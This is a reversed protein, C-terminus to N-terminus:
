SPVTRLCQGILACSTRGLDQRRRTVFHMLGLGLLFSTSLTHRQGRLNGPLALAHYGVDYPGQWWAVICSLCVFARWTV